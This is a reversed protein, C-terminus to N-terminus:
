DNNKFKYGKKYPILKNGEVVYASNAFELMPIDSSSDSYACSINVDKVLANLRNIKEKGKCNNGIIKGNSDVRTAIVVKIGLKKAFINIWLDYSASIIIDNERKRNLYWPKIKNMHSNVFDNIFKPYNNIKFIFGLMSEKVREFSVLGKKYEKKLKNAQNLSKIVLFPHRVFAYKIIDKNTDGNYITNDFDYINM